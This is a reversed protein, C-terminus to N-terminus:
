LFDIQNLFDLAQMSRSVDLVFIIDNIKGKEVLSMKKVKPNMLSFTLFAWGLFCVIFVVLRSFTKKGLKIKIPLYIEPEKFLKFFNILWFLFGLIGILYLYNNEFEM